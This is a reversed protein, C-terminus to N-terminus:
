VQTKELAHNKITNIKIQKVQKLFVYVYAQSFLIKFYTTM